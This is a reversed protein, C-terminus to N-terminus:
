TRPWCPLSPWRGWSPPWMGMFISIFMGNPFSPTQRTDIHLTILRAITGMGIGCLIMLLTHPQIYQEM